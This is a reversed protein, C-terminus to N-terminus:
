FRLQSTRLTSWSAFMLANTTAWPRPQAVPERNGGKRALRAALHRCYTIEPACGPPSAIRTGLMAWQVTDGYRREVEDSNDKKQQYIWDVAVSDCAERGQDHRHKKRHYESFESPAWDVALPWSTGGRASL